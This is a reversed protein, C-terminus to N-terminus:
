CVTDIILRVVSCIVSTERPFVAARTTILSNRQFKASQRCNFISVVCSVIFFLTYGMTFNAALGLSPFSKGFHDIKLSLFLNVGAHVLRIAVSCVAFLFISSIEFLIVTKHACM